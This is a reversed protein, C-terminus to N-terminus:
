WVRWSRMSYVGTKARVLCCCSSSASRTHIDAGNGGAVPWPIRPLFQWPICLSSQAMSRNDYHCCWVATDRPSGTIGFSVRNYKVIEDGASSSDKLTSNTWNTYCCDVSQIALTWNRAPTLSKERTWLMWLLDSAGWADQGIPYLLHPM